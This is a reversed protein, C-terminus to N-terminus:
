FTNAAWSEPWWQSPACLGSGPQQVELPSPPSLVQCVWCSPPVLESKHGRLLRDRASRRCGPSLLIESTRQGGLNPLSSEKPRVPEGPVPGHRRGVLRCRWLGRRTDPNRSARSLHQYPYEQESALWPPTRSTATSVQM